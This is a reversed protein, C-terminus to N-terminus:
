WCKGFKKLSPVPSNLCVKMSLNKTELLFDNVSVADAVLIIGKKYRLHSALITKRFVLFTNSFSINTFFILLGQSPSFAHTGEWAHQEKGFGAEV